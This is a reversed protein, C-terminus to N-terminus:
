QSLTGVPEGDEALERAFREQLELCREAVRSDIELPGDTAPPRSRIHGSMRTRYRISVFRCLRRVEADPDAILREYSVLLVDPREALGLDFYLSNRLYWVLASASEHSMSGLDFSQLFDLRASRLGGAQWVKAGGAIQHLARLDKEPWKALSSRIRAEPARVVWVARPARESQLEQLLRVARHSDALSKFVICRHRSRRILDKIVRKRRLRYGRFARSNGSENHIEVEPSRSLAELVM